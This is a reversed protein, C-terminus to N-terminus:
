NTSNPLKLKIQSRNQKKEDVNKDEPRPDLNLLVILFSKILYFNKSLYLFIKDQNKYSFKKKLRDISSM